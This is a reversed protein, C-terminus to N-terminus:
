ISFIFYFKVRGLICLYYETNQFQGLGTTVGKARLGNIIITSFM